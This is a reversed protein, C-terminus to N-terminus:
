EAHRGRLATWGWDCLSGSVTNPASPNPPHTVFAGAIMGAPWLAGPTMDFSPSVWDGVRCQVPGVYGAPIEFGWKGGFPTPPVDRIWPFEGDLHVSCVGGEIAPVLVPATGPWPGPSPPPADWPVFISAVCGDPVRSLPLATPAVPATVSTAREPKRACGQSLLLAVGLVGWGAVM